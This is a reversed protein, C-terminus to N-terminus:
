LDGHFDQRVVAEGLVLALAVEPVLRLPDWHFYPDSPLPPIFSFLKTHIHVDTHSHSYFKREFTFGGEM